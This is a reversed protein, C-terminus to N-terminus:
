RSAVLALAEGDSRAVGAIGGAAAVTALFHKQEEARKGTATKVEIALFVAVKKGVMDPTIVTPVWGILDSSGNCLGYKVYSGDPTKWAGVNNRFVRAKVKSVALMIGHMIPTETQM